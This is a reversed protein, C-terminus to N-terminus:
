VRVLKYAPNYHQHHDKCYLGCTVPYLTLIWIFSSFSHVDGLFGPSSAPHGLHHSRSNDGKQVSSTKMQPITANGRPLLSTMPLSLCAPLTLLCPQSYRLYEDYKRAAWGNKLVRAVNQSNAVKHIEAWGM